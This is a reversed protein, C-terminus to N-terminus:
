VQHGNGVDQRIVLNSSTGHNSSAVRLVQLERKLLMLHVCSWVIGAISGAASM